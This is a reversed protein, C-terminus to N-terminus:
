SPINFLKKPRTLISVIMMLLFGMLFSGMGGGGSNGGIDITACSIGQIEDGNVQQANSGSSSL